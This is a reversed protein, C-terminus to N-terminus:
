PNWWGFVNVEPGALIAVLAFLSVPILYKWGLVLFQDIRFRPLTSRLWAAVAVLLYAKITLSLLTVIWHSRFPDLAPIWGSPIPLPDYGGFFMYVLLLSNVFLHIYEVMMLLALRWGSFETRPGMVLSGEDEPIDFPIRETEAIGSLFFIFAAVAGFGAYRFIFWGNEIQFETIEILNLSGTVAIIGMVSILMPIEYAILQGASRFGGLLSYKSNSAWGGILMFPPFLSFLAFVYLFGITFDGGIMGERGFPLPALSVITAITVVSVSLLFGLKDAGIPRTDEKLLLKLTDAPIQMIGRWGVYVPGRRGQMRAMVKREVWPAFLQNILIYAGFLMAGVSILVWNPIVIDTGEFLFAFPIVPNYDNMIEKRRYISWCRPIEAM